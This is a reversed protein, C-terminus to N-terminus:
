NTKLNFLYEKTFFDWPHFSRLLMTDPSIMTKIFHSRIGTYGQEIYFLTDEQILYQDDDRFYYGWINPPVMTVFAMSQTMSLTIIVIILSDDDDYFRRCEWVEVQPFYLIPVITANTDLKPVMVAIHWDQSAATDDLHIEVDLKYGNLLYALKKAVHSVNGYIATGQVLLLSNQNFDISPPNSGTIFPQLETSSNIIYVSDQVMNAFNWSCGSSELSYDTMSVPKPTLSEALENVRLERLKDCNSFTFILTIALMITTIKSRFPNQKQSTPSKELRSRENSRAVTELRKEPFKKM